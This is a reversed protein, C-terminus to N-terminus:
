PARAAAWRREVLLHLPLACVFAAAWGGIWVAVFGLLPRAVVLRPLAGRPLLLLAWLRAHESVLYQTYSLRAIRGWLRARLLRAAAAHLPDGGLLLALLTAAVLAAIFPSGHWLLAAQLRTTHAPWLQSGPRRFLLPRALLQHAFAAQLCFAAASVWARRRAPPPCLNPPEAGETAPM